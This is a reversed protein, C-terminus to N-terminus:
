GACWSAPQMRWNLHCSEGSTFLLKHPLPQRQAAGQQSAFKIIVQQWPGLGITHVQLLWAHHQTLSWYRSASFLGEHNNRKSYSLRHMYSTYWRANGCVMGTLLHIEMHVAELWLSDAQRPPESAAGWWMSLHYITLLIANQWDPKNENQIQGTMWEEMKCWNARQPPGAIRDVHWSVWGATRRDFTHWCWQQPSSQDLLGAEVPGTIHNYARGEPHHLHM